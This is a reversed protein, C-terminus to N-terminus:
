KLRLSFLIRGTERQHLFLACREKPVAAKGIGSGGGTVIAAKGNLRM